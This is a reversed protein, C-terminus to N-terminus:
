AGAAATITEARGGARAIKELASKSFRHAKVVIPRTLEGDGLVKVGSLLKKVLGERVLREPTIEGELANLAGLNVVAYEKRFLNTFGRKPVRRQLPMQGGEFGFYQKRGSRSLQGKNGATATKGHGSGPGRGVRKPKRRSGKAPKLRSLDLSRPM